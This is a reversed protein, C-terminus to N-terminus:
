GHGRRELEFKLQIAAMTDVMEAFLHDPWATCVPKLRSVLEARIFELREARARETFELAESM